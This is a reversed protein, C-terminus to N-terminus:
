PELLTVSEYFCDEGEDSVYATGTEAPINVGHVHPEPAEPAEGPAPPPLVCGPIPRSIALVQVLSQSQTDVVGLNGTHEGSVLLAGNAPDVALFHAHVFLQDFPLGTDVADDHTPVDEADQGNSLDIIAVEQFDGLSDPDANM